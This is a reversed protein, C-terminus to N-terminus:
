ATSNRFSHLRSRSAQNTRQPLIRLSALLAFCHTARLASPLPLQRQHPQEMAACAPILRSTFLSQRRLSLRERRASYPSWCGSVPSPSRSGLRVRRQCKQQTSQVSCCSPRRLATRECCSDKASLQQESCHPEPM